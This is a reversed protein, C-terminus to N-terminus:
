KRIIVSTIRWNELKNNKMPLVGFSYLGLGGVYYCAQTNQYPRPEVRFNPSSYRSYARGSDDRFLEGDAIQKFTLLAPVVTTEGKVV